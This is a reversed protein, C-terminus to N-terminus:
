PPSSGIPLNHVVTEFVEVRTTALHVTTAGHRLGDLAAWARRKASLADRAESPDRCAIAGSPICLPQALYLRLRDSAKAYAIRLAPPTAPTTPGPIETVPPAPPRPPAACSALLAAIACAFLFAVIFTRTM